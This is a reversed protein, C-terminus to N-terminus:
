NTRAPAAASEPLIEIEEPGALEIRPGFRRDLLGRLRLTKGVLSQVDVGQASFAKMVRPAITADLLREHSGAAPTGMGELRLTTRYPGPEVGRLRAEVVVNSGAREAFAKRDDAALVSYAPDAWLGLRARRASEEAALLATRCAGVTPEPRYRALGAALAAAALGGAVGAETSAFAVLRGWRDPKPSLVTVTLPHHDLLAALAAVSRAERDPSTPTGAVPELGALRLQRGDVLMLELRPSVSALTVPEAAATPCSQARATPAVACCLALLAARGVGAFGHM